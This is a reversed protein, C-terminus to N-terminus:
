SGTMIRRPGATPRRCADASWRTTEDDGHVAFHTDPTHGTPLECRVGLSPHTLLCGGVTLPFPEDLIAEAAAREIFQATNATM